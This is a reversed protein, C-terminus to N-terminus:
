VCVLYIHMNKNLILLFRITEFSVNLYLKNYVGKKVKDYRSNRTDKCEM